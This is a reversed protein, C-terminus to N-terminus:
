LATHPSVSHCDHTTRAPWAPSLRTCRWVAARAAGTSAQSAERWGQWRQPQRQRSAWRRACARSGPAAMRDYVSVCAVLFTFLIVQPGNPSCAGQDDASSL